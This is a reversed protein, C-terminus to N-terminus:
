RWPCRLGWGSYARIDRRVGSCCIDSEQAWRWDRRRFGQSRVCCGWQLPSATSPLVRRQCAYDADLKGNIGAALVFASVIGQLMNSGTNNCVLKKGEAEIASCLLNNTTTKGNTGCVVFIKERVQSSLDKLIAPDIKLAIKGALTVGQRGSLRCATSIIKATWIALLRRVRM